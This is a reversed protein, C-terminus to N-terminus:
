KVMDDNGSGTSVDNIGEHQSPDWEYNIIQQLLLETMPSLNNLLM